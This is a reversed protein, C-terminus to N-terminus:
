QKPQDRQRGGRRIKISHRAVVAARGSHIRSSVNRVMLGIFTCIVGDPTLQSQRTVSTRSTITGNLGMICIVLSGDKTRLPMSLYFWNRGNWCIRLICLKTWCNNLLIPFSSTQSLAPGEKARVLELFSDKESGIAVKVFKLVRCLIM